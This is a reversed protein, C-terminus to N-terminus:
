VIKFIQEIFIIKDIRVFPFIFRDDHGYNIEIIDKFQSSSV